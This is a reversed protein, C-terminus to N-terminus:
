LTVAMGTRYSVVSHMALSISRRVVWVLLSASSSSAALFTLVQTLSPSVAIADAIAKVGSMDRGKCTM